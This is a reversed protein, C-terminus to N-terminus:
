AGEPVDRCWIGDIITILCRKGNPYEICQTHSWSSPGKAYDAFLTRTIGVQWVNQFIGATHSHGITCETGIKTFAKLSGRSGNPGRDGHMGYEIKNPSRHSEDVKLFRIQKMDQHDLFKKSAEEFMNIKTGSKISNYLRTQSELLFMANDINPEELHSTERVWRTYANDHNSAVVYSKCFDSSTERLFDCAQKIEDEVLVNAQSQLFFVDGRNHHNRCKFDLLDHFFQERPKLVNFMSDKNTWCARVTQEDQDPVHVDGWVISQARHGTTLCGNEWRDTLDYFSGDEEAIIQRVHFHKEDVIEVLLGGITHWQEAKQGAKKQMYNSQTMCGTTMLLKTLKGPLTPVSELALKPHPIIASSTGTHTQLGSLPNVATPLINLSGLFDLKKNLKRRKGTIYDALDKDYYFEKDKKKANGMGESGQGDVNYTFGSVLITANKKECMAEVNRLFDKHAPTNIQASSIFFTSTGRRDLSRLAKNYRSSVTRRPYGLQRAYASISGATDVADVLEENSPWKRM